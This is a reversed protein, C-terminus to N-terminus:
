NGPIDRLYTYSARVDDIPSGPRDHEVFVHRIGAQRSQGLIKRFDIVGEGVNVMRGDTTRDKAHILHFRGPHAAFYKLPDQGGNVIWFLDMEMAVLGADCAKLLVDYPLQGDIPKFEFDHNHYSFQLGRERAAEGAGNFADATRQLAALSNADDGGISAVVVYRQGLEAAADLTAPWNERVDLLSHHSSVARLGHRDLIDRMQAATKGHLGAFEIERYGIRAVAELTGEVDQAALNRLTYLQLGVVDLRAPEMGAGAATPRVVAALGAAATVSRVFSRRDLRQDDRRQMM